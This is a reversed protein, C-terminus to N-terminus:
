VISAHSYLGAKPGCKGKCEKRLFLLKRNGSESDVFIQRADEHLSKYHVNSLIEDVSSGYFIGLPKNRDVIACCPHFSSDPRITVACWPALCKRSDNQAAKTEEGVLDRRAEELENLVRLYFRKELTSRQLFRLNKILVPVCNKHFDEDYFYNNLDHVVFEVGLELALEEMDLVTDFTNKDIVFSTVVRRSDGGLQRALLRISEVVTLYKAEPLSTERSWCPGNPSLLSVHIKRPECAVVADRIRKRLLLGNTDLDILRVSKYQLYELIQIFRTHATPEGGGSLRVGRLGNDVLEDILRCFEYFPMEKQSRHGKTQNCFHCRSNCRDTLHIEAFVIPLKSGGGVDALTRNLSEVEKPTLLLELPTPLRHATNVRRM